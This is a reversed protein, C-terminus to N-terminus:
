VTLSPESAARVRELIDLLVPFWRRRSYERDVFARGANGMRARLAPDAILYTLADRWDAPTAALFGREGQAILHRNVGVPSAIAPLGAAMYQILKCGCKGRQFPEDQLPMIGIDFLEGIRVETQPSWELFQWSLGPCSIAPRPKSVIVLQFDLEAQLAALMPLHPFLTERISRNSGLWGVRVPTRHGHEAGSYAAADVVTPLITVRRTFRRAFAALTDNGATVWAARECIWRVHTEKGGEYIADDFDFVVRPNRQLLMREYEIRGQLLDRNLLVADYKSASRIDWLRHLRRRLLRGRQHVSRLPTSRCGSEWPRPPHNTSLSTTWGAEALLPFYQAIRFRCAPDEPAHAFALLRKM